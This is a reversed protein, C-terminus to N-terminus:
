RRGYFSPPAAREEGFLYWAANDKGDNASGAIWRVRGVSVIKHCRRLLPAAQITHMWDADFLLWTPAIGALNEILPHLIGRDWPPNTIIFDADVSALRLADGRAIGPAQPEIDCAFTCVLGYAELHRVLAGDGACPEAFRVPRRLTAPLDLDLGLYPALPGVAELPTAYWDRERREFDSRKGM